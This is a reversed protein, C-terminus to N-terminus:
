KLYGAAEVAEKSINPFVKALNQDKVAILVEAETPHISELLNIFQKERTVQPLERQATFKNFKRVESLLNTPTMGVPEPSPKFPPTSNPLLFKLEPLYAYKFLLVLGMNQRYKPNTLLEPNKNIEALLESIYKTM